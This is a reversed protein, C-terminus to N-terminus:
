KVRGTIYPVCGTRNLTDLDAESLENSLWFIKRGSDLYINEDLYLDPNDMYQLWKFYFGLPELEFGSCKGYCYVENYGVNQLDVEFSNFFVLAYRGNMNMSHVKNSKIVQNSGLIKPIKVSSDVFDSRLELFFKGLLKTIVKSIELNFFDNNTPFGLLALITNESNNWERFLKCYYNFINKFKVRRKHFSLRSNLTHTDFSKKDIIDLRGSTEFCLESGDEPRVSLDPSIVNISKAARVALRDAIENGAIFCHAPVKVVEVDFKLCFDSFKVKLWELLSLNKSCNSNMTLCNIAYTSDSFIYVKHKIDNILDTRQYTLDMALNFAYLEGLNNTGHGLFRYSNFLESGRCLQFVCGAGCKGPNGLASGDTFIFISDISLSYLINLSLLGAVLRGSNRGNKRM